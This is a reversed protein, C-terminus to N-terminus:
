KLRTIMVPSDHRGKEIRRYSFRKGSEEGYLYMKKPLWYPMTKLTVSQGVELTYFPWKRASM